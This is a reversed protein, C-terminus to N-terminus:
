RMSRNFTSPQLNFTVAAGGKSRSGALTSAPFLPAFKQIRFNRTDAVYVYGAPDVGVGWPNDFEGPGRGPHGLVTLFHGDSDFVSIRQNGYECLYVRDQRDLAVDYPYRLKGPASGVEGWIRVVEGRPSLKQVRHNVADAVYIFGRSDVAIGQPRQFQGPGGGLGARQWVFRGGADFKQVRDNSEGYECTYVNRHADVAVDTVWIFQGPAKGYRGWKRLLRGHEDYVLVESNHTDAVYIRGDPGVDLGRPNGKVVSPTHWLEVFRGDADFRQVRDSRDLVIVSGDPCFDVSRPQNFQGEHPGPEGWMAVPLLVRVAPGACGALLGAAAIFVAAGLRSRRM